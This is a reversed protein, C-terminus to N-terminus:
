RKCTGVLVEIMLMVCVCVPDDADDGDGDGGADGDGDGDGFDRTVLTNRIQTNNNCAFGLFRCWMMEARQGSCYKRAAVRTNREFCERQRM